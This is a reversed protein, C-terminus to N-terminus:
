FAPVTGSAVRAPTTPDVFHSVLESATIVGHIRLLEPGANRFAHVVGAPIFISHGPGVQRTEDAVVVEAEGALVTLVEDFDHWHPGPGVGPACEQLLLTLDGVAPGEAAPDSVFRIRSGPRNHWWAVREHDVITM